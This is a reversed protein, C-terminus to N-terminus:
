RPLSPVESVIASHNQGMHGQPCREQKVPFAKDIGAQITAGNPIREAVFGAIRHDIEDPIAPPRTPAAPRRSPVRSCAIRRLPPPRQCQAQPRHRLPIRRLRVVVGRLRRDEVGRAVLAELLADLNQRKKASVIRRVSAM